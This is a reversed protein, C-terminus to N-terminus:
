ESQNRYIITKLLNGIIPLIAKHLPWKQSSITMDFSVTKELVYSNQCLQLLVIMTVFQNHKTVM